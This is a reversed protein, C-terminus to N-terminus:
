LNFSTTIQPYSSSNIQPKSSTIILHHLSTTIQPHATRLPASPHYHLLQCSLDVLHLHFSDPKTRLILSTKISRYLGRIHFTPKHQAQTLGIIYLGNNAAPM